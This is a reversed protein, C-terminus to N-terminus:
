FRFHIIDLKCSSREINIVIDREIGKLILFNESSVQVSSWFVNQIWFREGSPTPRTDWDTYCSAVSQVTRPDFGPPPSIKRMQGSRGQSGGLRRYLPYGTKGPLLSCGPRSTSGEGRRTGHDLFLLAVGRSGMHATRGTCLRLAQVLTCKVKVKVERLDHWEHPLISSYPVALCTVSSLLIPRMRETHQIFLAVSM